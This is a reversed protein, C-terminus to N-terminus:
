EHRPTRATRVMRWTRLVLWGVTLAEAMGGVAVLLALPAQPVWLRGVFVGWGLAAFAVWGPLSSKRVQLWWAILTGAVTLGLTVAFAVLQPAHAFVGSTTISANSSALIGCAMMLLAGLAVGGMM